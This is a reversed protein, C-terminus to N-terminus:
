VVSKRDGGNENIITIARREPLGESVIKPDSLEYFKSTEERIAALGKSALWSASGMIEVELDFKGAAILDAPTSKGGAEDLALLLRKENYSLGELVDSMEM